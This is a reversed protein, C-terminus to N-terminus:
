RGQTGRIQRRMHGELNALLCRERESYRPNMQMVQAAHMIRRLEELTPAVSRKQDAARRHAFLELQRPDRTV